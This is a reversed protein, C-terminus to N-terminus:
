IRLSQLFLHIREMTLPKTHARIVGRINTVKLCKSTSLILM